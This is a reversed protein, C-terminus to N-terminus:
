DVRLLKKVKELNIKRDTPFKFNFLFWEETYSSTDGAEIWQWPGIPEIETMQKGNYWVSLPVSAMEGYECERCFPYKKAFLLNNTTAYAIWGKDSDFVYKPRETPANMIFCDKEFYIGEQHGPKYYIINDPGYNLYNEPFRNPNSLPVVCIGNGLGFTRSWFCLKQKVSSNNIIRQTVKLQSGQPALEFDRILQLGTKSDKLSTLRASFKGTIEATWKGHWFLETSPKIKEPGIDFRGGCIHKNPPADGSIGNWIWGDQEHDIYLANRGNLSYHLVRGGVNPELVVKINGNSIEVCGKYGNVDVFKVGAKSCGFSIVIMLSILYIKLNKM